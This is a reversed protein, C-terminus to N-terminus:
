NSSPFQDIAERILTSHDAPKIEKHIMRGALQVATDVSREALQQIAANKAADIEATARQLQRDAETRAAEVIKQGSEEAAVRAQAIIERSEDAAKALQAEYGKLQKASAEADLRAQEIMDAVSQERKALGDMVPGWAFKGLILLLLLFVVLSWIALDSKFQAPSHLGATGNQHSLDAPDHGHHDDEAYASGAVFLLSMALVLLPVLYRSFRRSFM